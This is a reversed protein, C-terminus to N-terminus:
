GLWLPRKQAVEIGWSLTRGDPAVENRGGEGAVAEVGRFIEPHHELLWATGQAGGNEEDAVA